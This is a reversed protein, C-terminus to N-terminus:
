RLGQYAQECTVGRARGEDAYGALNEAREDARKLVDALVMVARTAAASTAATCSHSSGQRKAALDDAARRVSDDARADALDTRAQDILKQGDQIAKNISHQRTQEKEREAAQALAWAQQDGADRANWRIQWDAAEVSRGHDYALYLAGFALGIALLVGAAALWLRGAGATAPAM